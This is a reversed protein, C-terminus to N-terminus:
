LRFVHQYNQSRNLGIKDMNALYETKQVRYM